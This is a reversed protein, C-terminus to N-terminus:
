IKSGPPPGVGRHMRQELGNSSAAYDLLAKPALMALSPAATLKTV